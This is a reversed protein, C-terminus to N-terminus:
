ISIISGNIKEPDFKAGSKHVRNLDFAQVLEEMSFLEKREDNWGLLALLQNCSRSFEERYGSSVGEATKL